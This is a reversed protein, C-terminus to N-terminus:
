EQCKYPAPRDAEVDGGERDEGIKNSRENAADASWSTIFLRRVGAPFADTAPLATVYVQLWLLLDVVIIKSLAHKGATAM